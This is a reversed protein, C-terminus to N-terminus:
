IASGHLTRMAHVATAGSSVPVRHKQNPRGTRALGIQYQPKQPTSEIEHRVILHVNGVSLDGRRGGERPQQLHAAEANQTQGIDRGGM